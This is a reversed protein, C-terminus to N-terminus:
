PLPILSKVPPVGSWIRIDKDKLTKSLNPLIEDRLYFFARKREHFLITLLSGTLWNM